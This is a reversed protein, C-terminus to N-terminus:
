DLHLMDPSAARKSLMDRARRLVEAYETNFRIEAMKIGTDLRRAAGENNPNARFDDLSRKVLVEISQGTENWIQEFLANLALSERAERVGSLLYMGNLAALLGDADFRDSGDRPRRMSQAISGSVERLRPELRYSAQKTLEAIITSWRSNRALELYGSVSRMLKHFRDLKLCASDIDGNGVLTPALMALQNQAHALVADGLPGFGAARIAEETAKGAVASAATILRSPSATQGVIVHMLLGALATDKLPLSQLATGLSADDGLGAMAKAFGRARDILVRSKIALLIINLRARVEDGGMQITMRRDADYDGEAEARVRRIGAYVDNLCIETAADLANGAELLGDFKMEIGPVIDRAAWNWFRTLHKRSISTDFTFYTPEEIVIPELAAIFATAGATQVVDDRRLGHKPPEPGTKKANGIGPFSVM